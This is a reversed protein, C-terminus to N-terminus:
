SSPNIGQSLVHFTRFMQKNCRTERFFVHANADRVFVHAGYVLM